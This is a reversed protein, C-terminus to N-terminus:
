RPIWLWRGILFSFTAAGLLALLPSAATACVRFVHHALDPRLLVLRTCMSITAILLLRDRVVQSRSGTRDTRFAGGWFRLSSPRVEVVHPEHPSRGRLCPDCHFRVSARIPFRRSRRANLVACLGTPTSTTVSWIKWLLAVIAIRSWVIRDSSRNLFNAVPRPYTDSGSTTGFIIGVVLRATVVV